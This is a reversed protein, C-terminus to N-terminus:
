WVCVSTEFAKVCLYVTCVGVNVVSYLKKKRVIACWMRYWLVSRADGRENKTLAGRPM